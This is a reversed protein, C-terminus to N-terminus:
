ISREVGNFGGTNRQSKQVFSKIKTIFTRRKKLLGFKISPILCLFFEELTKKSVQVTIM